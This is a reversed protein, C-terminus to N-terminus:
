LGMLKAAVFLGGMYIVLDVIEEVLDSTDVNSGLLDKRKIVFIIKGFGMLFLVLQHKFLHNQFVNFILSTLFAAYMGDLFNALVKIFSVDVTMSKKQATLKRILATFPFGIVIASYYAGFPVLVIGVGLSVIYAVVLRFGMEFSANGM